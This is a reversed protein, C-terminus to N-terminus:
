KRCHGGHKDMQAQVGFKGDNVAGVANVVDHLGGGGIALGRQGDGVEVVQKARDLEVLFRAAGADLRQDTGLDHHLAQGLVGRLQRAHHQQHLAALAVQVQALQQRAGPRLVHDLGLGHALGGPQLLQALAQDHQRTRLGPRHALRQHLAVIGARGLHRQLQRRHERVAKVDLQLARAAGVVLGM